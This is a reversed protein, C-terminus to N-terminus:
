RVSSDILYVYIYLLVKYGSYPYAERLIHMDDNHDIPTYFSISLHMDLINIRRYAAIFIDGAHYHKILRGLPDNLVHVGM